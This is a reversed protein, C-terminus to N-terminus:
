GQVGLALRPAFLKCLLLCVKLIIEILSRHSCRGRHLPGFNRPDHLKSLGAPPPLTLLVLINVTKKEGTTWLPDSKFDEQIFQHLIVWVDIPPQLDSCVGASLHCPIPSLPYTVPSLHSIVPSFHNTILCSLYCLHSTDYVVACM